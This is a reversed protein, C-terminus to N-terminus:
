TTVLNNVTSKLDILTQQLQEISALKKEIKTLFLNVIGDKTRTAILTQLESISRELVESEKQLQEVFHKFVDEKQPFKNDLYIKLIELANEKSTTLTNKILNVLETQKCWTLNDISNNVKRTAMDITSFEESQVQNNSDNEAVIQLPEHPNQKQKKKAQELLDRFNTITDDAKQLVRKLDNKKQKLGPLFSKAYSTNISFALSVVSLSILIKKM